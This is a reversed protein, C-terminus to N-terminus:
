NKLFAAVSDALSTTPRGILASLDGPTGDFEGEAVGNGSARGRSAQGKTGVIHGVQVYGGGSITWLWYPAPAQSVRWLGHRPADHAKAPPNKEHCYFHRHSVFRKRGARGTADTLLALLPGRPREASRPAKGASLDAREHPM